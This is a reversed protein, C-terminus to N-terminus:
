YAGVHPTGGSWARGDHNTTPVGVASVGWTTLPGSPSSPYGPPQGNLTSPDWSNNDLPAYAQILGPAYSTPNTFGCPNTSNPNNLILVGCPSTCTSGTGSCEVGMNVSATGSTFGPHATTNNSTTCVIATPIQTNQTGQYNPILVNGAFTDGRASCTDLSTGGSFRGTQLTNLLNNYFKNGAPIMSNSIHEVYLDVFANGGTNEVGPLLGTNNAWVDNICLGCDVHGAAYFVNNAFTSDQVGQTYQVWSLDSNAYNETQGLVDQFTLSSLESDTTAYFSNNTINVAEAFIGPFNAPDGLETQTFGSGTGTQLGDSHVSDYVYLSNQITNKDWNANYAGYNDMNDNISYNTVNGHILVNYTDNVVITQAQAVINNTVANCSSGAIMTASYPPASGNFGGGISIAGAEQAAFDALTWAGGPSNHSGDAPDYGMSGSSPYYNSFVGSYNVSADYSSVYNSDFIVNTTPQTLSGTIKVIGPDVATGLGSAVFTGPFTTANKILAPSEIGDPYGSFRIRHFGAISYAGGVIWPDTSTITLGGNATVIGMGTLTVSTVALDNALVQAKANDFSEQLGSGIQVNDGSSSGSVFTYNQGDVAFTSSLTVNTVHSIFSLSPTETHTWQLKTNGPASFTASGTYASNMATVAATLTDALTSGINVQDGTAGSAVFQWTDGMVVTTDGPNPNASFTGTSATWIYQYPSKITPTMKATFSSDASLENYTNYAVEMWTSGITIDGDSAWSKRYNWTEDISDTSSGVLLQTVGDTPLALSQVNEFAGFALEASPYITNTPLSNHQVGLGQVILGNTGKQITVDHILPRPKAPDNKIWLWPTAAGTIWDNTGTTAVTNIELGANSGLYNYTPDGQIYITDGPWALFHNTDGAILDSYSSYAQAPSNPFVAHWSLGSLIPMILDGAADGWGYSWGGFGVVSAINSLNDFPHSSDGWQTEPVQTQLTVTAGTLGGASASPVTLVDGPAYGESWWDSSPIINTMVGGVVTVGATAGTGSGGTLTVGYHQPGTVGGSGATYSAIGWYYVPPHGISPNPNFYWNKSTGYSSPAPPPATCGPYVDLAATVSSGVAGISRPVILADAASSFLVLSLLTYIWRNMLKGAVCYCPGEFWQIAPELNSRASEGAMYIFKGRWKGM